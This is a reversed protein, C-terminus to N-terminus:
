FDDAGRGGKGKVPSAPGLADDIRWAADTVDATMGYGFELFFGMKREAQAEVTSARLVCVGNVEAEVRDDIMAIRFRNKRGPGSAIALHIPDAVIYPIIARVRNGLLFVSYCFQDHPRASDILGFEFLDSFREGEAQLSSRHFSVTASFCVNRGPPGFYAIREGRGVADCHFSNGSMIERGDVNPLDADASVGISTVASDKLLAFAPSSFPYIGSEARSGTRNQREALAAIQLERGPTTDYLALLQRAKELHDSNICLECLTHAIRLRCGDDQAAALAAEGYAIAEDFRGRHYNVVCALYGFPEPHGHRRQVRALATECLDEDAYASECAVLMDDDFRPEREAGYMYSLDLMWPAHSFEFEPSRAWDTTFIGVKGPAVHVAREGIRPSLVMFEQEHDAAHFRTLDGNDRLPNGDVATIIDGVKLGIREGQSGSSVSIIGVGTDAHGVKLRDREITLLIAKSATAYAEESLLERM